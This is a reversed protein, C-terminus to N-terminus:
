CAPYSIGFSIGRKMGDPSDVGVEKDSSGKIGEQEEGTEDRGQRVM